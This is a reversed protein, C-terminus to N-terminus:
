VLAKETGPIHYRDQEMWRGIDYRIGRLDIWRKPTGFPTKWSINEDFNTVCENGDLWVDGETVAIEICATSLPQRHSPL